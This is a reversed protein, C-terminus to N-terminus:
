ENPDMYQAPDKTVEEVFFTAIKFISNKGKIMGYTNTIANNGQNEAIQNLVLNQPTQDQFKLSVEIQPRNLGYHNIETKSAGDEVFDTVRLNQFSQILQSMAKQNTSFTKNRYELDWRDDQQNKNAKWSNRTTKISFSEFKQLDFDFVKRNRFTMLSGQFRIALDKNILYIKPTGTKKAYYQNVIKSRTGIQIEHQFGEGRIRVKYKPNNLGFPELDTNKERELDLVVRTTKLQSLDQVTRQIFGHDAEFRDPKIITWKNDKQFEFVRNEKVIELHTITAPDVSIIQLNQKEKELEKKEKPLLYFTLGVLIALLTLSIIASRFQKM